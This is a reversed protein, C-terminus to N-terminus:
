CPKHQVSACLPVMVEKWRKEKAVLAEERRKSWSALLAKRRKEVAEKTQCRAYRCEVSCTRCNRLLRDDPIAAGCEDCNAREPDARLRKIRRADTCKRSCTRIGRRYPDVDVGCVECKVEPKKTDQAM